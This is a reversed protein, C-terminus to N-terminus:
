MRAGSPGKVASRTRRLKRTGYGSSIHVTLEPASRRNKKEKLTPKGVEGLTRERKHIGKADGTRHGSVVKTEWCSITLTLQWNVCDLIM